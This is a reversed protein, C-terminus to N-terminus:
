NIGPLGAVVYEAATTYALTYAERTASDFVHESEDGGQKALPLYDTDQCARLGGKRYISYVMQVADRIAVKTAEGTKSIAM